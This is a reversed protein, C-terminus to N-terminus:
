PRKAGCLRATANRHAPPKGGKKRSITALATTPTHHPPPQPTQAPRGIGGVQSSAAPRNCMAISGKSTSVATEFRIPPAPVLPAHHAVAGQRQYATPKPFRRPDVFGCAVLAACEFRVARGNPRRAEQRAGPAQGPGRTAAAQATRRAAAAAPQQGTHSHPRTNLVRSVSM